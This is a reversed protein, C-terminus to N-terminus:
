LRHAGRKGVEVVFSARTSVPSQPVSVKEVIRFDATFSQGTLECRVYGRQNNFFKVHPNKGRLAEAAPVTDAGDGGSSISTGIFETAVVPTEAKHDAKVDCVWNSHIDGTIVIPNQVRTNQLSATIRRRATEYGAWTDMQYAEVDGVGRNVVAMQVPNALINWQSRSARLEQDLWREQASGLMTREALFEPCPAKLGDGCAQDSRYQREDLVMFRAMPGFSLSRYLQAATGMPTATKPLPLWEYHAQYAAARRRLFDERPGSDRPIEAAYNDQLEHDDWTVIWPFLRHAERLNEDSRYLAYRSRYADLTRSEQGGFARPGRSGPGEYIYDGLFVVFDLDERIMNQYATYYGSEYSQCSAFAFRIRDTAAAPATKTRGIPSEASGSRFRYWYWRNPDLGTVDVHISHGYEVTAQTTGRRVVNQMREDSAVQWDVQVARKEWDRESNADPILRTWLVVSNRTPDGSAVGASFPDSSFRPAAQIAYLKRLPYGLTLLAATKIIERRNM